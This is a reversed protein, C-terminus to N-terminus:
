VGRALHAFISRCIDKESRSCCSPGLTHRDSEAIHFSKQLSKGLQPNTKQGFIAAQLHKIQSEIKRHAAIKWRQYCTSTDVRHTKAADFPLFNEAQHVVVSEGNRKHNGRNDM